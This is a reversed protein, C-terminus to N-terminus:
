WDLILFRKKQLAKIMDSYNHVAYGKTTVVGIEKYHLNDPVNYLIKVEGYNQPQVVGTQLFDARPASVCGFLSITIILLLTTYYKL